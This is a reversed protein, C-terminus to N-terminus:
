RTASKTAFVLQNKAVSYRGVYVPGIAYARGPGFSVPGGSGPFTVNRLSYGARTFTAVTLKKGAAKAIKEFMAINQCAAEPAVYSHDSGNGATSPPTITDNPYAKKIIKVCHQVLPDSWEQVSVPGPASTLATKLYRPNNGSSGGISGSLATYQTAIWHPNYSSQNALLGEPWSSSGTGVAVVENVGASQFRQTIVGIQQNSATQDTAPASDTASQVVKVHLKKLSARVVRLEPADTLSGAFVGVKKNKFLGKKAFVSLQLPDYAAPPPALTFNQAAGATPSGQFTANLTPIKYTQLYCEPMYPSMAVFIHDDQALQTCVALTSATGTPNVGEFYAVAHRGDIGGHANLNHILANYADPYSGQTLKIGLARLSSFDIYPVGIHITKSTVGSNPSSAGSPSVGALTAACVAAAAGILMGARRRMPGGTKSAGWLVARGSRSQPGPPEAQVLKEM